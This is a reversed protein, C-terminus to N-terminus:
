TQRPAVPTQPQLKEPTTLEQEAASPKLYRWLAVVVLLGGAMSAWSLRTDFILYDLGITIVPVMYFLVGVRSAKDRKLMSFLLLVAGVSVVGTMWGLALVFNLTPTVTMPVWPALCLFVVFATVQQVLVGPLLPCDSRKQDVSGLTIALVGVLAFVLGALTASGVDRGGWVAIVLGAFGFISWVQQRKSLSERAIFPTLLPQMGLVITLLGPSFGFDIALFYCAIYTVQLLLGVRVAQGISRWGPFTWGVFLVIVLLLISAGLTRWLLFGWVSADELGLKAAIAGTSWIMVFLLPSLREFLSM